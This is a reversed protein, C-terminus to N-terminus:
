REVRSIAPRHTAALAGPRLISPSRNCLCYDGHPTSPLPRWLGEHRDALDEAISALLRDDFSTPRIADLVLNTVAHRIDSSSQRVSNLLVQKLHAQDRVRMRLILDVSGTVVEVCEIEPIQVLREALDVQTLSRESTLEVLAAMLRGLAAHKITAHYGTIVGVSLLRAIRDAVAPASM